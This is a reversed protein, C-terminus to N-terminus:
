KPADASLARLRAEADRDGLSAAKRYWAAALTPDSKLGVAGLLTIFAPDLTRALAAAARASGANAAYEYYKRAASIDKIALMDDGRRVYEDATLQAPVAPTDMTPPSTTVAVDLTPGGAAAAMSRTANPDLVRNDTSANPVAPEDRPQEAEATGHKATSV